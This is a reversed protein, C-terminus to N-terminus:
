DISLDKEPGLGVVLVRKPTISGPWTNFLITEGLDGAFDGRNRLASLLGALKDDFDKFAEIYKDGAPNHKFACVIQLDTDASYPAVMRVTIKLDNPGAFSKETLKPTAPQPDARASQHQALSFVSGAVLATLSSVLAFRQLKM